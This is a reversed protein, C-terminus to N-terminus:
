EAARSSQRLERANSANARRDLRETIGEPPTLGDDIPRKVRSPLTLNQHATLTLLGAVKLLMVFSNVSM